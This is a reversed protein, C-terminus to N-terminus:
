PIIARRRALSRIERARACWMRAEYVKGVQLYAALARCRPLIRQSLYVQRSVQLLRLTLAELKKKEWEGRNLSGHYKMWKNKKARVFHLCCLIKTNVASKRSATLQQNILSSLSHRSDLDAESHLRLPWCPSVSPNLHRELSSSREWSAAAAGRGPRSSIVPM